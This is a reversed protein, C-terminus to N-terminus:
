APMGKIYFVWQMAPTSADSAAACSVVLKGMRSPSAKSAGATAAGGGKAAADKYAIQLQYTKKSGITDSSKLSFSPHDVTFHFLTSQPFVNKFPINTFSGSKVTFPGQPKPGVCHGFLPCSYEGGSPSALTLVTRSDGLHSPEYSIDVSVETGGAAAVPATISRDVIFDLNDVKATYETKTKAYHMFRFTQVVSGGLGVKFRMPLEPAAPLATVQLDYQYVGLEVSTFTLRGSSEGGKLPLLEVPCQGESHPPITFTHPVNVEAHNCTTTLSVPTSLPNDLAIQHTYSQRVPTTLKINGIVGPATAKINVNFFLFEGTAENRFMVKANTMGEKYAYFNLKYERKLLGPVDIYDLGKLQTSQDTRAVEITVRFRQSRKLWNPVTILETYATKCPVERTIVGSPKPLDTSGQLSYLVGSGDPFPFFVTGIHKAEGTMTLPHYTLEYTKTQGVDVTISEPGTWYENEIVPRIVWKSLTRNTLPISKVEKQRVPASFKVVESQPPQAICMGTLTLLLPDLGEVNCKLGEYRIDHSLETPHFTVDFSVDMGPSIYGDVPSISFDPGFGAAEWCFKAGIDGMNQLVIRRTARSRQVVAGFPVNDIELKIEIGQCAGSVVCLPQVLGGCEVQLEETFHPIRADPSFRFELPFSARPRLQIPGHPIVLMSRKALEELAAAPGLQCEVAVPSKNVLRVKRSASHGVRLAGFAVNKDAPKSMDMRFECGEGMVDVVVKSLGNIEFTIAESYQRLELPYFLIPVDVAEGPGLMTPSMNVELYQTNTFSCDLSIEQSDRNEIHLVTQNYPMGPRHLFCPGFNHKQFSFNLLPQSGSGSMLVPYSNGNTVQCVARLNKMHVKASPSFTLTCVMRDQSRVTGIKPSVSVLRPQGPKEEPLQWAFDYNFRGSNVVTVLRVAKENIQVEGFHLLNQTGAVLAVENGHLDETYIEDHIAYGEGKVNVNVPTPKRKVNCVLNFNFDSEIRPAFTVQVPISSNPPITGSVPSVGLSAGLGEAHFSKENFQFSFPIHENNVLRVTDKAQHGVLLAKFNLSNREMFVNPESAHGVLLFPVSIGHDPISFTWMSEVLDLLEPTYEFVVEHRKGSLITGRPTLCKFVTSGTSDVSDWSFDYSVASPNVLHFRKTNKVRVGCSGFELVRTAPDIVGSHAGSPAGNLASQDVARRGSTLYTSPPIDFHCFPRQGTADLTIIPAQGEEELNAVECVAVAHFDGADLPSFRVSVEETCGAPISGNPPDITFPSDVLEMNTDKDVVTWSYDLRVKGNNTVPFSFARTQFMMTTKFRVASTDCQLRTVDAIANIRLDLEMPTTDDMAEYAPEPEAEVIKKAAGRAKEEVTAWRVTHAGSDWECGASSPNTYMIHVVKCALKLEAHEVPVGSRFTASIARSANPALHGVSPSFTVDTHSPWVYRLVNTSHNCLSFALSREEGVHCDGFSIIGDLDGPLDELTVEDMYGEGVLQVMTDEFDNDEVRVQLDATYRRVETPQFVVPLARTQKSHIVLPLGQWSCGFARVTAEDANEMTVCVTAPIIGNNTLVLEMSQQRGMITRRFTLMPSSSKGLRLAPKVVTVQPLTGEGRVEFALSKSKSSVSNEVAAEVVGSYTHMTSPNFSVTVYTHEHPSISVKKPEIDFAFPTVSQRTRPKAQLTVDCPVKYPNTIKFRAQVTQGAIVPGFTFVREEMAYVNRQMEFLDLRRCVSHEEFISAFDNTNIGPVCAEAVLRYKLAHSDDTANQRDSIEIGIMETCRGATEAFCDVTVTTSTGPAVSGSAPLITFMGLMLKGSEGAKGGGLNNSTEVRRAKPNKASQRSAPRAGRSHAGSSPKGSEAQELLKFTTYKFEFEGKNEITFTRAKKTNVVMAGFNIDRIPHIAFQSFVTRVRVKIPISAIVENTLPEVVQCKLLPVDSLVLDQSSRFLVQIPVPKDNPLLVGQQPVLTFLDAPEASVDRPMADPDFIFKFGIEYKGKNKLTCTHKAEEFVKMVGFDLGGDCGKPFHVDMAVDYAEANVYINESQVVGLLKEVDLVELRLSKKVVVPKLAKFNAAVVCEQYPEVVGFTPSVDFEEGLADTGTLKWSVPLMTTNKLTFSKRDRRHLLLRDFSLQRKDLDLEPKVGYCVIDYVIPEPNDKVSCVVADTFTGPIKPYAWLTLEGTEGPALTMSTPSMAFTNFSVDQLFCFDVQSQMQGTNAVNFKVMNEPHRGEKYKERSKGSLLPGFEFVGTSTVFQKIVIDNEGKSKIRMPYVLRPDQSIEPFESVGRCYLQYRRRSSTVEFSLTQDFRGIHDASFRVMFSVEGNAPIIWRYPNNEEEEDDGKASKGDDGSAAATGGAAGNAAGPLSSHSSQSANGRGLQGQPVRSGDRRPKSRKSSGTSDKGAAGGGGPLGLSTASGAAGDGEGDGIDDGDRGLDGKVPEITFNEVVVHNPRPGPFQVLAYTIPPPMFLTQPTQPLKEVPEPLSNKLNKRLEEKTLTGDLLMYAMTDSFNEVDGGMYHMFVDDAEGASGDFSYDSQSSTPRFRSLAMRLKNFGSIQEAAVAIHVTKRKGEHSEKDKDKDKDKDKEKEKEKGVSASAGGSASVASASQLSDKGEGAGGIDRLQALSGRRGGNGEAILSGMDPSAAPADKRGSGLTAALEFILKILNESSDGYNNYRKLLEGTLLMSDSVEVEVPKEIPQSASSSLKSSKRQKESRGGGSGGSGQSNMAPTAPASGVAAGSTGGPAAGSNGGSPAPSAGSGAEKNNMGDVTLKESVKDMNIKEKRHGHPSSSGSGDGNPGKGSKSRQRDMKSMVDGKERRGGGEGDKIAYSIRRNIGKKSTKHVPESLCSAQETLREQERIAEEVARDEEERLWCKYAKRARDYADREEDNLEDYEAEDLDPVERFRAQAEAEERACQMDHERQAVACADLHLSIFFVKKQPGFARAVVSVATALNPCYPSELSDMVVGRRCDMAALREQLIARLLSVPLELPRIHTLDPGQEGAAGSGDCSGSPPAAPSASKKEGGGTVAGEDDDNVHTGDSAPSTHAETICRYARLGNPTEARMADEVISTITLVVLNHSQALERAITTKGSLPAGHLVVNVSCDPATNTPPLVGERAAYRLLSVSAPNSVLTGVAGSESAGGPTAATTAAPDTEDEAADSVGDETNGAGSTSNSEEPIAGETGAMASERAKKAYFADIIERPLTDGPKRPPLLLLGDEFGETHRLIEEEDIYQRDFDLSYVEIDKNSPNQITVLREVGASYPLVPPLELVAPSFNLKCEEGAGRVMFTQVKPNREVSVTILARYEAEESPKFKLQVNCRQDPQLVGTAPLCTFNQYETAERPAGQVPGTRASWVCPVAEPNHLQVVVVKCESCAVTGFSVTDGAPMIAVSPVIVAARLTLMIFPGGQIDIPLVAENIGLPLTIKPGRTQLTVTFDVAEAGPLHKVREPEVAFGTNALAKKELSFSVDCHGINRVRVVMKKSTSRVVNGFDCLYYALVPRSTPRRRSAATGKGTSQLGNKARSVAGRSANGAGSALPAVAATTGAAAAAARTLMEQSHRLVMLREAELNIPDVALNAVDEDKGDEEVERLLRRVPPNEAGDGMETSAPASTPAQSKLNQTAEGLCASFDGLPLRPLDLVVRPFVGEGSVTIKQPEFHAVNLLFHECFSAPILPTFRVVLKAKSHPLIHGSRPTISIMDSNSPTEDSHFTANGPGDLYFDFGVNGQNTVIIEREATEKFMQRGFSMETRDVTYQMTSAEGSLSVEYNPGGTVSCVAVASFQANAHGYFGFYVEETEGPQLTSRLPLIDFVSGSMLLDTVRIGDEGCCQEEGQGTPKEAERLSWAYEVPLCGKNTVTVVQSTETDNVVCGFDLTHRDFTLNPYWVEASLEVHDKHPHDRYSISLKGKEMTTFNDDKYAPNFTIRVVTHETPELELEAVDDALMFPPTCRLTMALPLSSVNTLTLESEQMPVVAEGTGCPEDHKYVFSVARKSFDLLPDVFEANVTTTFIQERNSSNKGIVAHCALTETALQPRKSFGRVTIKGSAGPELVLKDPVVAFVPVDSTDVTSTSGRREGERSDALATLVSTRKSAMDVQAYATSRKSATAARAFGDVTWTLSQTRRGRNTLNFTRCCEANSFHHGFYVGLLNDECYITTGYGRATLQIEHTNSQEVAVRLTDSFRIVDDLFTTLVIEVTGNPAITGSQPSVSFVSRRGGSLISCSFNAEILSENCLMLSKTVEKLVPTKGWDLHSTNVSVAPGTGTCLLSARLHPGEAGAIAVYVPTTFNGLEVCRLKLELRRTSHPEIVGRAEESCYEVANPTEGDAPEPQPVLAFRAPLTSANVLEIARKYTYNAFCEGFDLLRTAIAIDPLECMAQLPLGLLAEGVGEVDVVLSTDYHGLTTSRLEIGVDVSSHPEVTAVGKPTLSFEGATDGLVRTSFSMPIHSTNVLTVHEANTFGYAVTGFDIRKREFHFTPGIVEGKFCLSLPEPSGELDWEFTESFAGLQDSCFWIVISQQEGVHLCGGLPLFRFKPGFLSNNPRLRYHVDIDGRNELVVEYKHVSEIFVNGVDLQDFSFRARPGMGQGKLALPLRAERGSIDCYLTAPYDDAIRPRFTVTVEVQSNPWIDGEVPDVAYIDDKHLMPDCAVAQRATLFKRSLISVKTREKQTDDQACLAEFAERDSVELLETEAIARSRHADEEEETAYQTWKFHAMIGSYNNIKVTRQSSQGMFTNDLWLTSKALRVNADEATAFLRVYVKEGTDYHVEVFDSFSGTAVPSFVVDVQMSEGPEMSGKGPQVGFPAPASVAFVARRMGVNRVLLTKVETHKVACAGFDVEDPFDLLARAGIARVPVVFKERETVCVLECAYDKCEEPTFTVNFKAEMGPAMKTGNTKSCTVTFYPSEPSLVRIRRAVKDNNRMSVVVSYTEFPKYSQFIVESPFPQFLPVDIEVTTDRHDSVDALDLFEIIVPPKNSHKLRAIREETTLRMEEMFASPSRTRPTAPVVAGHRERRSRLSATRHYAMSKTPSM